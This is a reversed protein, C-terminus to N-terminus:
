LIITKVVKSKIDFIGVRTVEEICYETLIHHPLVYTKVKKEAERIANKLNRSNLRLPTNEKYGNGYYNEPNLHLYEAKLPAGKKLVLSYWFLKKRMFIEKQNQTLEM